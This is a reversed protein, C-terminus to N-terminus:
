RGPVAGASLRTLRGNALRAWKTEGFRDAVARYQKNAEGTENLREFCRGAEYLAAASWEPYAFLIDVKLLERISNRYAGLAFHCEGIQFQARAATPGKHQSTVGRYSGIADTFRGQHEQAWGIGFKAQFWFSREAHQTMYQQFVQESEPWRQLASLAEGLRLLSAAQLEHSPFDEVVRRFHNVAVDHRGLAHLAEGAYYSASPLLSSDGFTETFRVFRSAAEKHRELQFECLALRYTAQEALDKSALRPSQQLSSALRTLLEAAPAFQQREMEISALDLRAHMSTTTISPSALISRYVESASEVQDTARLCWAKEYRVALQLEPALKNFRNKGIKEMAALAKKFQGLRSVCIACHASAAGALQHKPFQERFSGFVQSAEEFSESALLAVGRRYLADAAVDGSADDVSEFAKAASAFDKRKMALGGLHTRAYPEFRTGAGENVVTEFAAVAEEDRDLQVLAQGREFLAQVRHPSDDFESNLRDFVAIAEAARDQQQLAIGYKILADDTEPETGSTAVFRSLYSEANKWEGRDFFINGLTLRLPNLISEDTTQKEVQTLWKEADKDRDIRHYSQGLRFRAVVAPRGDTEGDILRQYAKIAGKYDGSLFSNEAALMAVRSRQAGKKCSTLYTQCEELSKNYEGLDHQVTATLYLAECALEHKSFQTGFSRLVELGATRNDSRVLAVALDYHMQPALPSNPASAILPRLRNAAARFEGRRLECKAVWYEADQNDDVLTGFDSQAKAYDGNDFRIRARQFRAAPITHDDPFGDLLRDLLTAAEDASGSQYLVNALGLLADPTLKSKAGDLVRRYLRAANKFGRLQQHCQALLFTAERTFPSEPSRETLRTFREAALQHNKEGMALLGCFFDMRDKLPSKPWKREARRCLQLGEKHKADRYAAEIAGVAADDALAHQSHKTAVKTFVALASEYKKNALYSQALMVGIEVSFTHEPQDYLRKLQDVAADFEASRFRCVALGYRALPAKPHAQHEDLFAVYEEAALDYLGRNLLGNGSYYSQLTDHDEHNDRQGAVDALTPRVSFPGCVAMWVSVTTLCGLSWQRHGRRKAFRM